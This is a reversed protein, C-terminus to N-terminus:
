DRKVGLRALSEPVKIRSAIQMGRGHGEAHFAMLIHGDRRAGVQQREAQLLLKVSHDTKEIKAWCVTFSMASGCGPVSMSPSTMVRPRSSKIASAVTPKVMASPLAM